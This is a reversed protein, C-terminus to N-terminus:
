GLSFPKGWLTVWSIVNDTEVEVSVFARAQAYGGCGTLGITEDSWAVSGSTGKFKNRTKHVGQGFDDSEELDLVYFSKAQGPGLTLHGGVNGGANPKANEGDSWDVGASPGGEAGGGSIDVQCGVTYGPYISGGVATTDGSLEVHADGTVWANRHVPTAGLSPNINASEGDLWVHVVTGDSLTKSLDGGPLPVFTDANAAGTSFLGLAATAVAGACALRAVTERIKM